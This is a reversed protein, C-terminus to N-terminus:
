EKMPKEGPSLVRVCLVRGWVCVCVCVYLSVCLEGRWGTCSSLSVSPWLVMHMPFLVWRMATDKYTSHRDKLPEQPASLLPSRASTTLKQWSRNIARYLSRCNSSFLATALLGYFTGWKGQSLLFAGKAFLLPFAPNRRVTKNKRHKQEYGIVQEDGEIISAQRDMNGLLQPRLWRRWSADGTSLM